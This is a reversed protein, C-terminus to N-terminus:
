RRVPTRPLLQQLLVTTETDMDIDGLKHNIAALRAACARLAQTDGAAHHARFLCRHLLENEEAALLGRQAAWLAGPIDRAQLRRTSLEHAAHTIESVMGQIAPEAWTYRGPDIGTFPRGRVLALARRLALDGDESPDALGTRAHHQFTHWDCDVTPSLRYRSDNTDQVRPLHATGNPATGLWTRARSIAANRVQKSVMQGPWLAADIHHHDVGPNLALYAVLETATRRRNSEIRGTAGEVAIPGLLLVAPGETTSTGAPMNGPTPRPIAPAVPAVPAAPTVPAAPAVPKVLRSLAPPPPVPRLTGPPAGQPATDVLGDEALIDALTPGPAPEAATSDAEAAPESFTEPILPSDELQAELEAYETPLGDEEGPAAVSGNGDPVTASDQDEPTPGPATELGTGDPDHADAPGSGPVTGGVPRDAPETQTDTIWAPAAVSDTRAATTLLCVADTYHEDALGQLHVALQSGPLVVAEGPAPCALTWGGATTSGTDPADLVTVVAAATRPEALATALLEREDDAPLSQALVIRPTWCDGATGHLRAQRLHATGLAALAKHQSATHAALAAVAAAADDIRDVRDPVANELGTASDGTVTIELHGPGPTTALEIAVAQLVQRATTRNGTLRLAGVHELDLLVLNKGTDWGISVLAPYPTDTDALADDDALDTSSAPCTWLRSGSGATFPRMAPEDGAVHLDIRSAHLVVAELAPLDRGDAALNRALTRLARDLLDLGDPQEAARLSQETAAARGTPLPIHRGAPLRRQQLRRRLAVAGLLAAALSGAGLWLSVPSLDMSGAPSAEAAQSDGAAPAAPVTHPGPTTAPAATAPAPTVPASTAPASPVTPVTPQAPAPLAPAPAAPTGPLVLDQGPYILDPDTLRHGDPRRADKNANFIDPWRDGDGYAAEAISSLSDGAHVTVHREAAKSDRAPSAQPTATHADTPLNLVTGQALPHNAATVGPVGPNLAAIDAWRQGDGLAAVAIDWLTETGSAVTHTPWAKGSDTGAAAAPAAPAAAATSPVPTTGTADDPLLLVWGPQLVDADFVTGDTMTRHKNLQAIDRWRTGDGLHQQAIDWLSDRSQVTYRPHRSEDENGPQAQPQATSSTTDSAPAAAPTATATAAILPRATTAAHAPTPAALASTTPLAVLVAGVLVAALRQPAGLAPLRIHRGTLQAPIEALVCLAFSAWGAWGAAVLCAILPTAVGQQPTLLSALDATSVGHPLLTTTFLWLLAPLGALLALLAALALVARLAAGLRRALRPASM